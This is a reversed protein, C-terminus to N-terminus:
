AQNGGNLNGYNVNMKAYAKELIPMWWAGNPSEKTDAPEYGQKVATGQANYTTTKYDEKVPLMDDVTIKVQKDSRAFLKVEFVGENSYKENTFLAKVRDPWEALAAVSALFWCDGLIGQRVAAPRVGQEGWLSPSSHSADVQYPREWKKISQSFSVGM